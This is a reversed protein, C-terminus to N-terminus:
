LKVKAPPKPAEGDKGDRGKKVSLRWADSTGPRDTTSKQAIWLSGGFSVADGFEYETGEKFVGRDIVVPLVFPFEKVVDGRILRVVFSRAGDHVIEMDDFGLGDRGPDGDKGIVRGLTVAAGNTLTVVLNGERDIVAGAIGVGDKPAPLGAVAKDVLDQMLPRVDEVTISKGDAPRPLAAVAEGVAAVIVPRVDDLSVSAGDKAPPLAAVASRVEEVILTKVVELDADAGDKAPPLAGVAAAVADGVMAKVVEPDVSEGDRPKPLGAVAAAVLEMVMPQLDDANVSKGDQPKPLDAFRQDVLAVLMPRVDEATVSAGDKAPPLAKVQAAVEDLVLTKVTEADVDKGAPVLAAIEDATPPKPQDAIQRELGAIRELLPATAKTIAAAVVPAMADALMLVDRQKM